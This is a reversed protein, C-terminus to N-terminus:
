FRREPMLTVTSMSVSRWRDRPLSILGRNVGAENALLGSATARYYGVSGEGAQPSRPRRRVAEGDNFSRGPMVAEGRGAPNRRVASVTQAMVAVMMCARSEVM